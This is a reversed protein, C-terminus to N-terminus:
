AKPANSPNPTPRIKAVMWAGIAFLAFGPSLWTFAPTYSETAAKTEAFLMPGCGSALVMICQACGQIKGLHSKGFAQAYGAFFLVAFAGGAGGFLAAHLAAGTPTTVGGFSILYVAIALMTGSLLRGIPFTRACWGAVFNGLLGAGMFAAMSTEYVGRDLHRERLIDEYFLTIGTLSLYFLGTSATYIWFVPSRLAETLTADGSSTEQAARNPSPGRFKGPVLAWVAFALIILMAGGGMWVARWGLAGVIAGSSMALVFGISVLASFIGLALGLRRSFWKGIMTMSCTSLASQGFGRSLVLYVALTAATATAGMAVVTASLCVLTAVTTLRVGLRDVLTGACLGFGAGIWTAWLNWRAYETRDLGLELLIPETILGLGVTRGPLTAVM